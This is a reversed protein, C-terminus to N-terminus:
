EEIKFKSVKAKGKGPRSPKNHAISAASSSVSGDANAGENLELALMDDIEDSGRIELTRDFTVGQQQAAALVSAKSSSMTMKSRVPVNEPCSFIFFSVIEGTSKPLRVAIFSAQEESVHQQFKSSTSVNKASLLSVTESELTMEVWNCTETKFENLKEIVQETMEFPLVGMASSKIKVSENATMVKEDLVLRETETLIDRDFERNLTSQFQEWTVDSQLNAAYEAQFYGLGLTRKLDERSSSYLMKDRVRCGDPVWSLLMWSQKEIGGNSLSFILFMAETEALSDVLISNFDQEANAVCNVVGDLIL